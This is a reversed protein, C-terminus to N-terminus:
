IEHNLLDLFPDINILPELIKIINRKILRIFLIITKEVMNPVVEGNPGVSHFVKETTLSSAIYIQSSQICAFSSSTGIVRTKIRKQTKKEIPSRTKENKKPYERANIRQRNKCTRVHTPQM